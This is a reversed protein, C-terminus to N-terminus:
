LIEVVNKGSHYFPCLMVSCVCVRVCVAIGLPDKRRFARSRPRDRHCCRVLGPPSWAQVHGQLYPAYLRSLFHQALGTTGSRLRASVPAIGVHSCPICITRATPTTALAHCAVRQACPQQHRLHAAPASRDRGFHDRQRFWYIFQMAMRGFRRATQKGGPAAGEGRSKKITSVLIVM